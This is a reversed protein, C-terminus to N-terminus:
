IKILFQFEGRPLGAQFNGSACSLNTIKLRYERLTTMKASFILKVKKNEHEPHLNAPTRDPAFVVSLQELAATHSFIAGAGAWQM